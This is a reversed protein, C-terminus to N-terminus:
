VSGISKHAPGVLTPVHQWWFRAATARSGAEGAWCSGVNNPGEIL